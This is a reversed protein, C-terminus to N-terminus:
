ANADGSSCRNLLDALGTRGFEVSLIGDGVQFSRAADDLEAGGFFTFETPTPWHQFTPVITEGLHAAIEQAKADSAFKLRLLHDGILRSRLTDPAEFAAVKGDAIWLARSALSLELASHCAMLITMGQQRQLVSHLKLAHRADLGTYPEDLLAVKPRHALALMLDVRQREGRSLWEYTRAELPAVNLADMMADDQRGYLRRHMAIVERVKLGFPLSAKQLAVGMTQRLRPKRQWQRFPQGLMTGAVTRATRLGLISEILTSKGAGNAGIIAIVEGEGIALDALDLTLQKTEVLLREIWIAAQAPAAVAAVPLATDAMIDKDSAHLLPAELTV